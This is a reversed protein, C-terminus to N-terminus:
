VLEQIGRVVAGAMVGAVGSSYTPHEEVWAKVQNPAILTSGLPIAVTGTIGIKAISDLMEEDAVAMVTAAGGSALLYGGIMGETFAIWQNNWYEPLFSRVRFFAENCIYRLPEKQFDVYSKGM